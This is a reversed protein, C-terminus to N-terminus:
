FLSKLPDEQLPKHSGTTKNLSESAATCLCQNCIYYCKLQLKKIEYYFVWAQNYGETLETRGKTPDMQLAWLRTQHRQTFALNFTCHLSIYIRTPQFGAASKKALTAGQLNQQRRNPETHCLGTNMAPAKWTDASPRNSFMTKYLRMEPEQNITTM